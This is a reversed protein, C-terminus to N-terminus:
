ERILEVGCILPKGTKPIFGVILEKNIKIGRFEKVLGRMPGGAQSLIELNKLVEQGQLTVSFVRKGARFYEPEAFYLRVTFHGAPTLTKQPKQLIVPLEKGWNFNIQPVVEVASPGSFDSNGDFYSAIVGNKKGDPTSLIEAPIVAKPVGEVSWSLVASHSDHKGYYVSPYYEMVLDYKKNAQLTLSAREELKRGRRLNKDNDIILKGDIWLRTGYSTKAYFTYKGTTPPLIKGTWRVSFTNSYPETKKAFLSIKVNSLGKVGSAIVWPWGVGGKVWVSHRYYFELNENGATQISVPVDPSPGGVVPYELWLTGDEVIRDGKAGFNIGVRNIAGGKAMGGWSTWQEYTEPMHVLAMSTALPYNCFCGGTWHPLLMVGNAPVISNRCGSRVAGFNITGSELRKDYYASSGSRMTLIYGYDVAMQDCGYNKIFNRGEEIGTLPNIRNISIKTKPIIKKPNKQTMEGKAEEHSIVLGSYVDTFVERYEKKTAPDIGAPKKKRADSGSIQTDGSSGCSHISRSTRYKM